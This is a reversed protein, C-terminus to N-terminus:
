PSVGFAVRLIAFIALAGLLLHVFNVLMLVTLKAGHHNVYDEVVVQVGLQSHYIAVTALLLMLVANISKGLWAHVVAYDFSSLHVLSAVFWLALLVLAVSSMRQAWWHHAGEKAAGLGEVKGLSSRLSM